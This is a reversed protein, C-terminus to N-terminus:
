AQRACHGLTRAPERRQRGISPERRRAAVIVAVLMPILDGRMRQATKSTIAQRDPSITLVPSDVIIKENLVHGAGITSAHDARCRCPAWHKTEAIMPFRFLGGVSDAGGTFVRGLEGGAGRVCMKIPMSPESVWMLITDINREAGLPVAEAEELERQPRKKAM